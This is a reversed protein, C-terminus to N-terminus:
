PVTIDKYFTRSHFLGALELGKLSFIPSNGKLLQENINSKITGARGNRRTQVLCDYYHVQLTDVKLKREKYDLLNSYNDGTAGETFM